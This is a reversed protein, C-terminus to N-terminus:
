LFEQSGITIKGRPTLHLEVFGVSVNVDSPDILKVIVPPVGGYVIEQLLLIDPGIM